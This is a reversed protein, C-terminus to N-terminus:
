RPIEMPKPVPPKRIMRPEIFRERLAPRANSPPPRATVVELTASGAKRAREVDEPRNASMVFYAARVRTNFVQDGSDEFTEGEAQSAACFRGLDVVKGAEVKFLYSYDRAYHRFKQGAYSSTMEHNHLEWDGAPFDRVIVSYGGTPDEYDFSGFFPPSLRRHEKRALDRFLLMPRDVLADKCVGLALVVRGQGPAVPESAWSPSVGLLTL